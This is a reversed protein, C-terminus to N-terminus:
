NSTKAKTEVGIIIEINNDKVKMVGTEIPFMQPEKNDQHIIVSEKILAIFNAHYPLIDFKGKNSTSSVAKAFGDFITKESDKITISLQTKDAM